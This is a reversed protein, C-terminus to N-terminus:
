VLELRRPRYRIPLLGRASEYYRLLEERGPAGLYLDGLEFSYSDQYPLHALRSGEEVHAKFRAQSMLEQLRAVEDSHPMREVVGDEYARIMFKAAVGHAGERHPLTPRRGLAIEVLAKQHSAGDVMWFLPCHSKSIRTNLELLRVEDSADNWFFEVNFASDRYDVHQMLLRTAQVMREQVSRPLTSPYEYRFFSSRHGGSRISDVIGYVVVEGRYSFGELTCQRGASIIEEVLCHHGTVERVDDPVDVLSLFQDFPEGFRAIGNRIVELVGHLEGRDRILFGLHSSHSKVPKIWFPFPFDLREADPSFPDVAAFRPVLESVVDTQAIRSWYKHELTAVSVLDPGCLGLRRQLVPVLGTTPFDWWGVVADVPGGDAKLRREAENALGLFDPPSHDPPRVEEIDLLPLFEVERELGTTRLMEMSFLDAGVVFVRRKAPERRAATM